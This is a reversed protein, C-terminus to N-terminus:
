HHNGDADLERSRRRQTWHRQTPNMIGWLLGLTVFAWSDSPAVFGRLLVVVAFIFGVGLFVLLAFGFGLPMSGFLRAIGIRLPRMMEFKWVSYILLQLSIKTGAFLVAAKLLVRAVEQGLLLILVFLFPLWYPKM